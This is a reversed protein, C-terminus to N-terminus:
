PIVSIVVRDNISNSKTLTQMQIRRIKKERGINKVKIIQNGKNKNINKNIKLLFATYTSKNYQIIKDERNTMSLAQHQSVGKQKSCIKHEIADINM